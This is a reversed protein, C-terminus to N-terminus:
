HGRLSYGRPHESRRKTDRNSIALLRARIWSIHSWRTVVNLIRFWNSFRSTYIAVILVYATSLIQNKVKLKNKWATTSVVGGEKLLAGGVEAVGKNFKPGCPNAPGTSKPSGSGGGASGSIRALIGPIRGSSKVLASKSRASGAVWVWGSPEWLRSGSWGPYSTGWEWGGNLWCGTMSTAVPSTIEFGPGSTSWSWGSCWGTCLTCATGTWSGEISSYM